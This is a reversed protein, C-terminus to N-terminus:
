PLEASNRAGDTAVADLTDDESATAQIGAHAPISFSVTAGPGDDNAAAWIRGNHNEIITRSVYLGIGMGDSKTTHFPEFLRETGQAGFGTGADRVSLRVHFDQDLVTKVILHRRRDNIRSMADVGNRMLNMTVQQLQVRDGRILPLGDALEDSLIVGSRRLDVLSIAIVERVAENLDVPEMTSTAGSFLMRLRAIVDAARNGDRITRLATERAGEVNPPDASLMRLCTGANTIIGALPQNVEHAISATMAGLSTIRTVHALESRLRGLVEESRRRETVDQLSGLYELRGDQHRVSRAATRLHKIRGDPMQLRIEYDPYERNARALAVKEAFLTMDDPHTRARIGDLTVPADKEFEFIRHAEDSLTIEDPDLLWSFSGTLSLREGAALFAESRRLKEDARKRETIDRTVALQVVTGDSDHMPVAHTEVHRRDGQLNVIDFELFGKQGDCVNENFERFRSRHEPVIFDYFDQGVVTGDSTAGILGVGASNVRLLTGDRAVMKVCEPTTDVIARFSEESRKRAEIDIATVYHKLVTGAQDRLTIGGILFWRYEGNALRLRCEIEYPEGTEDSRSCKEAMADRDEPHILALPGERLDHESFGLQKWRDNIFDVIGDPLSSVVLAPITDVIARMQQETERLDEEARKREDIDINVGYWHANGFEDSCPAARILFWRYVGDFRRRRAVTDGPAGSVLIQRQAADVGELDDPHISARWGWGRVQEATRGAYDLYHQNAYEVGGDAGASWAIAPITNIMMNLNRESVRLALQEDIDTNVVYWKAVKDAEDLIPNASILFRRYKGDFRRIRAVMQAPECSALIARWRGLVEPRDEPDFAECWGEGLAEERSLGTYESWLRSVFDVHGQPLATWSQAPLADLVQAPDIKVM